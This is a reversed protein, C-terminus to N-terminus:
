LVCNKILRLFQIHVKLVVKGIHRGSAMYRFAKEAEDYSFVTTNIPKVVGVAIGNKLMQQLKTKEKINVDANNFFSDLTIGHFTVNQLFVDM